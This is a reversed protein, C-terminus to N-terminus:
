MVGWSRPAKWRLFLILMVTFSILIIMWSISLLNTQFKEKADIMMKIEAFFSFDGKGIEAVENLPISLILKFFCLPSNFRNWAVFSISSTKFYFLFHIDGHCICFCRELQFLRYYIWFHVWNTLFLIILNAIDRFSRKRSRNVVLSSSFCRRLLIKQALHSNM